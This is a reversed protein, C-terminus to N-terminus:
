SAIQKMEYKEEERSKKEQQYAWTLFAIEALLLIIKIKKDKSIAASIGLLKTIIM